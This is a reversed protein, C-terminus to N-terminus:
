SSAPKPDNGELQRLDEADKARDTASKMRRLWELSVFRAGGASLSEDFVEQVDADPFAPVYDFLDLFGLDTVLLMLHNAKIYPATVPALKELRTAPDVENTIFKANVETLAALLASEAAESRLWIVDLDETDRIYGHFTVAHGGIVVLPVGHDTLIKLLKLHEV